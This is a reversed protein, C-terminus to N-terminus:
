SSFVFLADDIQQSFLRLAIGVERPFEFEAIRRYRFDHVIEYFLIDYIPLAVCLSAAPDIQGDVRIESVHDRHVQGAPLDREAGRIEPAVDECFARQVSNAKMFFVDRAEEFHDTLQHVVLVYLSPRKAADGDSGGALDILLASFENEIGTEPFKPINGQM